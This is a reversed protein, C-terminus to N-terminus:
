PPIDLRILSGPRIGQLAQAILPGSPRIRDWHNTSLVILVLRLGRLNQQHQLNRDATMLVDFAAMEARRILNGNSIGDWGLETAHFTEHDGLLRSLGIPLNEDLLIRM